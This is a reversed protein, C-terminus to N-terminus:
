KAKERIAPLARPAQPVSIVCGVCIVCAEALSVSVSPPGQTQDGSFRMEWCAPCHLTGRVGAMTRVAGCPCLISVCGAGTPFWMSDPPSLTEPVLQWIPPQRGFESLRDQGLEGPGQGLFPTKERPSSINARAHQGLPLRRWSCQAIRCRCIQHRCGWNRWPNTHGHPLNPPPQTLYLLVCSCAHNGGM